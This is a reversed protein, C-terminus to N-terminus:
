LIVKTAKAGQKKIFIGNEPNAVKVGQLNYYEVPANADAAVSEIATPTDSYLFTKNILDVYVYYTGTATVSNDASSGSTFDTEEGLVINTGVNIGGCNFSDWNSSDNSKKNSLKFTANNFTIQATYVAGGNKDDVKTLATPNAPDWSNDYGLIYIENPYDFTSWTISAWDDNVICMNYTDTVKINDIRNWSDWNNTSNPDKRLLIMDTIDDPIEAKYISGFDSTFDYWQGDGDGVWAWAEFHAGDKNWVNADLYIIKANATIACLVLALLFYIKKM